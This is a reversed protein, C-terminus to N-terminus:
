CLSSANEKKNLCQSGGDQMSLDSHIAGEMWHGEGKFSTKEVKGGLPAAQLDQSVGHGLPDGSGRQSAWPACSGGVM